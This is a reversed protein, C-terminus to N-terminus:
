AECSSAVMKLATAKISPMPDSKEVTGTLEVRRDAHSSLEVSEAAHVQYTQKDDAVLIFEGSNPGIQLCGAITVEEVQAAVQPSQACIGLSMFLTPLVLKLTM